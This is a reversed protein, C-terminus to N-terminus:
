NSNRLMLERGQLKISATDNVEPQVVQNSQKTIDIYCFDSGLKLSWPSTFDQLFKLVPINIHLHDAIIFFFLM